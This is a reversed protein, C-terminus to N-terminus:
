KFGWLSQYLEKNSHYTQFNREGFNILNRETEMPEWSQCLRKRMFPPNVIKFNHANTGDRCYKKVLLKPPCSDKKTPGSIGRNQIAPSTQEPNLVWPLDRAQMSKWRHHDESEGRRCRSVTCIDAHCGLRKPGHVQLDHTGLCQHPNSGLVKILLQHRVHSVM